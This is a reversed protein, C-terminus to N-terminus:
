RMIACRTRPQLHVGGGGGEGRRAGHEDHEICKKGNQMESTKSFMADSWYGSFLSWMILKANAFTVM